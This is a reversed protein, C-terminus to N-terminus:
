GASDRPPETEGPGSRRLASAIFPIAVAALTLYYITRTWAAGAAGHFSVLWFMPALMAALAVATWILAPLPRGAAAPLVHLAAISMWVLAGPILILLPGAADAFDPGFIVGIVTRHFLALLGYIAAALMVSVLTFRGAIRRLGTRNSAYWQRSYEPQVGQAIPQVPLRTAVIIQIAARYLGTQAANTLAGLVLVDINGSLAGAKTRFFSAIQFRIVDPPAQMRWSRLLGPVGARGASATAALGMGTGAVAIGALLALVVMLLGGGQLSVLALVTVQTAAAAAAVILGLRLRDALRLVALSELQTSMFVGTVGYILMAPRHAPELGLVGSFLLAFAALLGYSLLALGLAVAFIFRLTAAAEEPRGAALSRTVYTTIAEYGPVAMFQYALLTTATILALIGFSEPGLIRASLSVQLLNGM